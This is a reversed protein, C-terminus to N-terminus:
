PELQLGEEAPTVAFPPKMRASVTEMWSSLSADDRSPDHHFPVLHKVNAMTGFTIAQDLSSHGWGIRQPYEEHTYQADHILLDVGSALDHGSMWEVAEPFNRSGLAPEHDPFYALCKNNERIRYGIAGGPHTIFDTQVQFEGIEFTSTGVEHFTLRCQLDAILVPFLPPSLYRQLRGRLDAYGCAPAWFHIDMGPNFLPVFFGLGLIHDLHLHSLLVDLRTCDPAVSLGMRRIGTGADLVLTTGSQGRVEVCSTNGGFRLTDPGPAALSGRTGWFTVKM